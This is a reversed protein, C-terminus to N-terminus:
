QVRINRARIFDRWKANEAAFFAPWADFPQAEVTVGMAQWRPAMDPARLAAAAVANLRRLIPEPTGAPALMAIQEVVEFGAFGLEQFTPVDPAYRSRERTTAALARLDGSAILPMAAATPLVLMGTEGALVAQLAPGGGRYGVEEITIGATQMFLEVALHSTAGVGSNAYTMRHNPQRAAAIYDQLTRYPARAPVMIFLPSSALLGVGVFDREQNYQIPYIHHAIAFTSNPTIVITTGDPRARAAVQMGITGAAGGRNDVVFNRGTDQSMRQSLVRAFADTPGGPPWPVIVTIPRSPLEEQALAPMALLSAAGTLLTRRTPRNL